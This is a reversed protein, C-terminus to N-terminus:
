CTKRFINGEESCSAYNNEATKETRGPNLLSELNSCAEIHRAHEMKARNLQELVKGETAEQLFLKRELEKREIELIKERDRLTVLEMQINGMSLNVKNQKQANLEVHHEHEKLKEQLQKEELIIRDKKRLM